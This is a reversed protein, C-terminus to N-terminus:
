RRNRSKLMIGWRRALTCNTLSGDHTRPSDSKDGAGVAADTELNAPLETPQTVGQNEAAAALLSPLFGPFSQPGLIDFCGAEPQVHSVRGADLGGGCPKTFVM